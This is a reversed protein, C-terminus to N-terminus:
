HQDIKGLLYPFLSTTGDIRLILIKDRYIRPLRISPSKVSPDKPQVEILSKLEGKPSYICGGGVHGIVINNEQDIDFSTVLFTGSTQGQENTETRENKYFPKLMSNEIKREWLLVGTPSAKRLERLMKHLIIVNGEHDLKIDFLIRKTLEGRDALIEKTLQLTFLTSLKKGHIDYVTITPNSWQDTETVYVRENNDVDMCRPVSKMKFEGLYSGDVSFIKVGNNGGNLVFVKKNRVRVILPAMLEAPGQGLSSIRNVLAGTSLEVRVINGSRNDLFYINGFEDFDIDRINAIFIQHNEMLNSIDTAESEKLIMKEQPFVAITLSLVALLISSRQKM